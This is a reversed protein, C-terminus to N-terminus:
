EFTAEIGQVLATLTKNVPAQLDVKAAEVPISGNIVSVESVRRARIDQLVSPLADPMRSAFDRVWAVPDDFSLPIALAQAVEFAECAAMRSVEGLYQDHMVEGVSLGSLACPASYAVNCILKEWQMAEINDVAAADFGAEQWTDAIAQVRQATLGAYPGMRIAKMDNHHVHGPAVRAAGFGQAIGVILQDSDVVEAVVDASGLGNQLTVVLTERTIGRLQHAAERVAGAKVALVILDWINEPLISAVEPYVRRDGSAGTVRLGNERITQLHESAPGVVCVRHGASVLLAAYVSGMAGCGIVAINM